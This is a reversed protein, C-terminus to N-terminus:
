REGTRQSEILKRLEVLERHIAHNDARLAANEARLASIREDQGGDVMASETRLERLAEVTLAEFGRPGVTKFGDEGESVWEPFVKEVEQAIFGIQRGPLYMAKPTREPRYQYEVGRLALLRDLTGILPVLGSKLREDSLAAWSGGGPKFAQQTVSFDGNAALLIRDVFSSGDYQSIFFSAAGTGPLMAMNIGRGHAAPKLYLDVNGNTGTRGQLVAEIGAPIANTNLGFGGDARVLYQDPGSSTFNADQSDGWVYSGQDGDADGTAPVGFCGNNSSIGPPRVKARRGGAWSYDGGACNLRGGTISSYDGQASNESGGGVISSFGAYNAYGGGITGGSGEAFNFSGGGVFGLWDSVNEVGGAITGAYGRAINRAGGGVTAFARDILTGTDDGARNAYGGGVTGFADTVRNPAEGTFNPDSTGTPVGGGSITAGRVGATAGNASSGAIVNATIPVGGFLEASPEIRLSQANATRLVLPQADTTGLFHTAPNSGSDGVTSWCAGIAAPTQMAKTRGPIVSFGGSGADRVAAQVWAAESGDLEADFDLRFRGDVVEVASFVIPATVTAGVEADRYVALQIDYRGNAPMGRDDLQGEYVFSAAPLPPSTLFALGLM